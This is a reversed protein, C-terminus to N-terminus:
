PEWYYKEIAARIERPTSVVVEVTRAAAREVDEIALLDLPNHMALTLSNDDAQIPICTHQQALRQSITTAAEPTIAGETLAVYPVDCQWALAQAVAEESAHGKEILIAGVHQQPNGKQIQIAEDVLEQSVLKAEVLLEGLTRKQGSLRTAAEQVRQTDSTTPAGSAAKGPKASAGSQLRLSRLESRADEADKLAEALQTALVSKTGKAQEEALQEEMMHQQARVDELERRLANAADESLGKERARRMDDLDGRLRKCESTVAEGAKRAEEADKRAEALSSETEALKERVTNIENDRESEATSREDLRAKHQAAEEQASKASAEAATLAGSKEELEARLRDCEEQSTKAATEWEKKQDELASQQARLEEEADEARKKLEPIKELRIELEKVLAELEEVREASVSSEASAAAAEEALRIKERTEDFMKESASKQKEVTGAIGRLVQRTNALKEAFDTNTDTLQKQAAQM